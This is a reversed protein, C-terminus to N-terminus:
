ILIATAGDVKSNEIIEKQELLILKDVVESLMVIEETNNYKWYLLGLIKKLDKHVEQYEQQIEKKM